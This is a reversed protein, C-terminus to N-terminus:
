FKDNSDYKLTSKKTSFIDSIQFLALLLTAAIPIFWIKPISYLLYSCILVASLNFLKNKQTNIHKWRNNLETTSIAACLFLFLLSLLFFLRDYPTEKKLISPLNLLTTNVAFLACLLTNWSTKSLHIMGFSNEPSILYGFRELESFLLPLNTNSSKWTLQLQNTTLSVSVKTVGKHRKSLRRVLWVCGMCTLGDIRFTKAQDQLNKAWSFNHSEFPKKGLPEGIRDQQTYFESLGSEHILQYVHECGSCCFDSSDTQQPVPTGCHKCNLDM